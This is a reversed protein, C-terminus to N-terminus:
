YSLMDEIAEGFVEGIAWTGFGVLAGIPAGVPGAIAVGTVAGTGINGWMGVQRGIKEYGIFELGAQAVDVAIGAPNFIVKIAQLAVKKVGYKMWQKMAVKTSSGVTIACARTVSKLSIKGLHTMLEKNEKCLEVIKNQVTRLYKLALYVSGKIAITCAEDFETSKERLFNYLMNLADVDDTLRSHHLGQLINNVLPVFVLPVINGVCVYPYLILKPM